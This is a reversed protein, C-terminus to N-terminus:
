EEKKARKPKEEKAVPPKASYAFESATFGQAELTEQEAESAVLRAEEGRRLVKPYEQM